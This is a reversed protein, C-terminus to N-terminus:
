TYKNSTIDMMNKRNQRILGLLNESWVTIENPCDFFNYLLKEVNSPNLIIGKKAVFRLCCFINFLASQYRPDNQAPKEFQPRIHLKLRLILRLVWFEYLPKKRFAELTIFDNEKKEHSFRTIKGLWCM